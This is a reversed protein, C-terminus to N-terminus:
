LFSKAEPKFSPSRGARRSPRWGTGAVLSGRPGTAAGPAASIRKRGYAPPMTQPSPGQRNSIPCQAAVELLPGPPWTGPGAAPGLSCPRDLGTDRCNSCNGRPSATARGSLGGEKRGGEPELARVARNPSAQVEGPIGRARAKVNAQLRPTCPPGPHRRCAAERGTQLHFSVPRWPWDGRCEPHSPPAPAPTPPESVGPLTQSAPPGRHCPGPPGKGGFAWPCDSSPIGWPLTAPGRHSM